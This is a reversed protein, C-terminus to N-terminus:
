TNIKFKYTQSNSELTGDGKVLIGNNWEGSIKTNYKDFVMEGKGMEQFNKAKGTYTAFYRITGNDFKYRITGDMIQTNNAICGDFYIFIGASIIYTECKGKFYESNWIGKYTVGNSKLLGKGYYEGKKWEGEYYNGNKYTMSGQGEIEGFIWQGVYIDGNAYIMKGKGNPTGKKWEGEYYDGNPYKKKKAEVTGSVLLALILPLLFLIKKM